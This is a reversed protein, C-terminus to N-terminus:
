RGPSPGRVEGLRRELFRREQPNTALELAREYAAGAEDFRNLRRLLDARASHFLHYGDLAEALPELMRLGREPGDAMAVSVARNLEVVPSPAAASLAEYLAAIQPWDTDEPRPARAHVAAIAAQLQYPGLASLGRVRDLLALGEDIMDHDWRSRDQDELLVLEGSADVRADRRSHHLLMLTL